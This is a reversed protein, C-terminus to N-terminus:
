KESNNKCGVIRKILTELDAYIIDSKQKPNFELKETDKSPM